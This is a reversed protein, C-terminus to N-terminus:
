FKDPIQSRRDMDVAAVAMVPRSWQLPRRVAEARAGDRDTRM